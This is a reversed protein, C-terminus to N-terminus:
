IDINYSQIKSHIAIADHIYKKRHLISVQYVLM